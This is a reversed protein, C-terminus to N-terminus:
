FSKVGPQWFRPLKPNTFDIRGTYQIMPHDAAFFQLQSQQAEAKACFLFCASVCLPIILRRFCYQFQIM